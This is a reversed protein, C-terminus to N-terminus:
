SQPPTVADRAALGRDRPLALAALLTLVAAGAAVLFLASNGSTVASSVLTRASTPLQGLQSPTLSAIDLGTPGGATHDGLYAVITRTFLAGLAGVGIASGIMRLFSAAGTTAGVEGAPANNQVLVLPTQFLLGIGSGVLVMYSATVWAPTDLGMTALLACGAALVSTGLIMVPRFRAAKSVWTGALLSVAIAPLLMPLLLLGSSSASRGQVLQLFMPLFNTASAMVAGMALFMVVFSMLVSRNSFLDPPFIPHEARREVVALTAFAALCLAAASLVQWSGWAYQHGGWTVALM